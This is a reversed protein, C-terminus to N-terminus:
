SAWSASEHTFPRSPPIRNELHGNNLKRNAFLVLGLVRRRWSWLVCRQVSHPRTLVCVGQRAIIARSADFVSTGYYIVRM